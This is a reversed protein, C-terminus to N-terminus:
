RLRVQTRRNSLAREMATCASNIHDRADTWSRGNKAMQLEAEVKDTYLGAGKLVMVEQWVRAYRYDQPEDGATAEIAMATMLSNAKWAAAAIDIPTGNTGRMRYEEDSM